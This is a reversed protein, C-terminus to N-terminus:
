VLVIGLSVLGGIVATAERVWKHLERDRVTLLGFGVFIVGGTASIVKEALQDLIIAGSM